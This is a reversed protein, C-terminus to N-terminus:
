RSYILEKYAKILRKTVAGQATLNKVLGTVERVPLVESTTGTLSTEDVNKLDSVKISAKCPYCQVVRFPM